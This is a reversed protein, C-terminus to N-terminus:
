IVGTLTITGVIGNDNEVLVYNDYDDSEVFAIEEWM